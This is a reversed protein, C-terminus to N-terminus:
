SREAWSRPASPVWQLQQLFGQTEEDFAPATRCGQATKHPLLLVLEVKERPDSSCPFKGVVPVGGRMAAWVM